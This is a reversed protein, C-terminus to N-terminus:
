PAGLGALWDKVEAQERFQFSLLAAADRLAWITAENLAAAKQEIAGYNAKNAKGYGILPWAALPTGDAALLRMQYRIWVEYFEGGTQDPIAFQVEEIHPAVIGDLAPASSAPAVTEGDVPAAVAVAREFMAEFVQAFVPAQSAGIDISYTGHDPLEEEHVYSSLTDDFYVGMTAPIPEVLPRPVSIDVTVAAGGKCGALFLGLTAVAGFALAACGAWRQRTKGLGRM